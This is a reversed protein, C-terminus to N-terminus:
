LLCGSAENERERESQKVEELLSCSPSHGRGRRRDGAEEKVHEQSELPLIDSPWSHPPTGYKTTQERRKNHRLLIYYISLGNSLSKRDFVNRGGCGSTITKPRFPCELRDVHGNLLRSCWYM